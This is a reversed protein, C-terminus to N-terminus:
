PSNDFGSFIAAAAPGCGGGKTHVGAAAAAGGAARTAGDVDRFEYFRGLGQGLIVRAAAECGRCCVPRQEGAVDVTLECGSDIPGACHFCSPRAPALM